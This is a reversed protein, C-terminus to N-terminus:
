LKIFPHVLKGFSKATNEIDSSDFYNFIDQVNSTTNVANLVIAGISGM